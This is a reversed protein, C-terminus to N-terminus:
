FCGTAPRRPICKWASVCTGMGDAAMAQAPAMECDLGDGCHYGAFGGCPEGESSPGRPPPDTMEPIGSKQEHGCFFGPGCTIAHPGTGCVISESPAKPPNTKGCAVLVFAVLFTFPKM